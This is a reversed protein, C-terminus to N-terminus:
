AARKKRLSNYFVTIASNWRRVETLYLCDGITMMSIDPQSILTRKPSDTGDVSTPYAMLWSVFAEVKNSDWPVGGDSMREKLISEYKTGKIPKSLDVEEPIDDPVDNGMGDVKPLPEKSPALKEQGHQNTADSDKADDIQLLGNLAYKRAYSSAAGTIQSGDMGKKDAEERAYASVSVAGVQGDKASESDIFNATAKVYYRDGIMEIRDSLTIVCGDLLPKVAELIDECSRYKYKGFANFQGKPAKLSQQVKHLKEYINM